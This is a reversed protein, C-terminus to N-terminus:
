SISAGSITLNATGTNTITVTKQSTQAVITDPFQVTPSPTISATGTGSTIGTGTLPVDQTTGAVGGSDDTFRLIASKAGTTTPAFVVQITRSAGSALTTQGTDSTILFQSSNTGTKAVSAITLTSPNTGSNTITFTQVASQQNIVTNPFAFSAPSVQAIGSTAALTGSLSVTQSSTTNGSDDNITLTATKTGTTGSPPAFAVSVTVSANPAISAGSVTDATTVFMGANTGSLVVGAPNQVATNVHLTTSGINKVTVTQPNSTSGASASFSLSSPTVQAIPTAPTVTGTLTVDQTSGAVNNSDDTFRLTATFTTGRADALAPNFRVDVPNSAGAALSISNAAAGSVISFKSPNAGVLTIGGAPITLTGSGSNTISVTQTASTGGPDTNAFTISNTSLSATPTGTGAGPLPVLDITGLSTYRTDLVFGGDGTGQTFKPLGFANQITWLINYHTGARTFTAPHPSPPTKSVLCYYTIVPVGGTHGDNGVIIIGDPDMAAQLAALGVFHDPYVTGGTTSSTKGQLWNDFWTVKAVTAGAALDHADNLINPTVFFFDPLRKNAIDANFGATGSFDVRINNTGAATTATGKPFATGGPNFFGAPNHRFAVAGGTNPNYLGEEYTKWTLGHSQMQSFINNTTNAFPWPGSDNGSKGLSNGAVIGCYNPQSPNDTGKLNNAFQYQSELGVEYPAASQTYTSLAFNESWIIGIQPM